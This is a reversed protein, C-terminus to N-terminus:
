RCSRLFDANEIYFSSFMEMFCVLCFCQSDVSMKCCGVKLRGLSAFQEEANSWAPQKVEEEMCCVAHTYSRPSFFCDPFSHESSTERLDSVIQDLDPQQEHFGPGSSHSASCSGVLLVLKAM